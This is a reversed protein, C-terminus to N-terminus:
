FEAGVPRINTFHSIQSNKSFRDLFDLNRQFRVLIVPVKRSSRHVYVLYNLYSRSSKHTFLVCDTGTMNSGGQIDRQIGSLILFTESLLQLSFLFVYKKNRLKKKRFDQRKHSLTPFNQIAPSAVSSLINPRLFSAIQM